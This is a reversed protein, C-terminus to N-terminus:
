QHLFTRALAFFHHYSVLTLLHIGYQHYIISIASKNINKENGAESLSLSLLLELYM